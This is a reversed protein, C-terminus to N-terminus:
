PPHQPNLIGPASWHCPTYSGTETSVQINHSSTPFESNKSAAKAYSDPIFRCLPACFRTSRAAYGAKLSYTPIFSFASQIQPWMKPRYQKRFDYKCFLSLVPINQRPFCRPQRLHAPPPNCYPSLPLRTNLNPLGQATLNFPFPRHPLPLNQSPFVM